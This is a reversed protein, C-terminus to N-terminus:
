LGKNQQIYKCFHGSQIINHAIQYHTRYAKLLDAKRHIHRLILQRDKRVLNILGKQANPAGM